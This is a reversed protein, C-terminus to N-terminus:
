PPQEFRQFKLDKGSEEEIFVRVDQGVGAPRERVEGIAGVLLDLCDDVRADAPKDCIVFTITPYQSRISVSNPLAFTGCFSM